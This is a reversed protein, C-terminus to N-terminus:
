KVKEIGWKSYSDKEDYSKRDKNKDDKPSKSEGKSDKKGDEKRPAKFEYKPEKTKFGYQDLTPTSAAFQSDWHQMGKRYAEEMSEPTDNWSPFLANATVEKADESMDGLRKKFLEVQRSRELEFTKRLGEGAQHGVMGAIGGVAPGFMSGLGGSLGTVATSVGPVQGANKMGVIKNFSDDYDAKLNRNNQLEMIEKRITPVDSPPIAGPAEPANKGMFIADNLAKQNVVPARVGSAESSHNKISTNKAGLKVAAAGQKLTEVNKQVIAPLIHQKVVANAQPNNKTITDLHHGVIDRLKTKAEFPAWIEQARKQNEVPLDNKVGLKNLVQGSIAAKQANEILKGSVSAKHEAAQAQQINHNYQITLLNRAGEKSNKQAELDREIEKDMMHLLVNPQGSVGSGMGSLFLGFITGIKGLTGKEVVNGKEDTTKSLFDKYTKPTIKNANLDQSFKALDDLKDEYTTGVHEPLEPAPQEPAAAPAQAQPMAQPAPPAVPAQSTPPDIIPEEVELDAKVPEGKSEQIDLKEVPVETPPAMPVASKEEVPAEIIDGEAEHLPLSDLRKRLTPSLGSIAIKIEHGKEHRFTASNKDQSIKKCNSFDLGSM